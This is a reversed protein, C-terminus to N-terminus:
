VKGCTQRLCRLSSEYPLQLTMFIVIYCSLMIRLVANSHVASRVARYVIYHRSLSVKVVAM